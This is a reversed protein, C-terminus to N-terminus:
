SRAFRSRKWWDITHRLGEELNVKPEYGLLERARTIDALSHRVDGVRPERYEAQVETHEMLQKLKDLLENLTIREGNAVNIVQGIGSTTEAARLNAEVVNAV